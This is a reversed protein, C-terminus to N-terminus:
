EANTDEVNISKFYKTAISKLLKADVVHVLFQLLNENLQRQLTFLFFVLSLYQAEYQVKFTTLISQTNVSKYKIEKSMQVLFKLIM